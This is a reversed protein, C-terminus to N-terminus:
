LRVAGDCFSTRLFLSGNVRSAPKVVSLQFLCGGSQAVHLVSIGVPASGVTPPTPKTLLSAKSGDDRLHSITFGLRSPESCCPEEFQPVRM